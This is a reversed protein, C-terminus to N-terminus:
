AIARYISRASRELPQTGQVLLHAFVRTPAAFRRYMPRVTETYQSLISEESRGREEVDRKVRRQLCVEDPAEVFVRVSLLRRIEEWYLAFLGEVIVCAHPEVLEGQPARVHEPFLYRPKEVQSGAKLGRLNDLLLPLDISQPVDFNFLHRRTPDIAALDRYYHDIPLVVASAPPLFEVLSQAISSKGSCSGGALGILLPDASDSAFSPDM